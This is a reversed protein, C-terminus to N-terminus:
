NKKLKGIINNSKSFLLIWEGSLGDSTKNLIRSHTDTNESLNEKISEKDQKRVSNVGSQGRENM